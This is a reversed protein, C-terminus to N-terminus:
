KTVVKTYVDRLQADKSVKINEKIENLVVFRLILNENSGHNHNEDQSNLKFCENNNFYVRVSCDNEYCLYSTGIKSKTNKKYIQNESPVWLLLSDRREGPTFKFDCYVKDNLNLNESSSLNSSDSLQSNDSTTIDSSTSSSAIEDLQSMKLTSKDIVQNFSFKKKKFIKSM